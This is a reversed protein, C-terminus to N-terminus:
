IVGVKSSKTLNEETNTENKEDERHFCDNPFWSCKCLNSLEEKLDTVPFQTLFHFLIVLHCSSCVLTQMSKWRGFHSSRAREHQRILYAIELLLGCLRQHKRKRQRLSFLIATFNPPSATALCWVSM